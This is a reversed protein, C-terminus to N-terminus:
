LNTSDLLNYGRSTRFSLQWDWWYALTDLIRFQYIELGIRDFNRYLNRCQDIGLGALVFKRYLDRRRQTYGRSTGFSPGRQWWPGHRYRKRCQDIGFRYRRYMM